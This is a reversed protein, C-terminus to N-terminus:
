FTCIHWLRLSKLMCGQKKHLITEYMM